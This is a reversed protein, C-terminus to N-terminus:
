LLRVKDVEGRRDKLFAPVEAFCCEPQPQSNCTREQQGFFPIFPVMAPDLAPISAM